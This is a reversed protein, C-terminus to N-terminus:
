FEEYKPYYYLDLDISSLKRFYVERENNIKRNLVSTYYYRPDTIFYSALWFLPVFFILTRAFSVSLRLRKSNKITLVFFEAFFLAFVVRFYDVYRYAIVFNSRILVFMVGLMVFPELRLLVLNKGDRKVYWLSFLPYLITPLINVIFYNINHTERGYSSDESTYISIKNEINYNGEFLFIYDALLDQLFKGLFFAGTLFVLGRRNFRLFFLAPLFFMVITQFHFMLALLLLSYGKIWKKDMIYDYAYLCIVISFSARMIEMMFTIYFLFFYFLACTFIYNSHKKFYNMILINVFAAQILQVVYFRGGLSIVVSNLLVYLPDKGVYYDKFSFNGLTPYDHYFHFLYRHTDIGGRWRLGALLIFICLIALYWFDRGKIKGCIDYRISLCLLLIIVFLYIM